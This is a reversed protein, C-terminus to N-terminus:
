KCMRAQEDHTSSKRAVRLAAADSGTGTEAAVLFRNAGAANVSLRRSVTRTLSARRAKAATFAAAAKGSASM